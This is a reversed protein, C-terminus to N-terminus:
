EREPASALAEQHSGAERNKRQIILVAAGRAQYRNGARHGVDILACVGATRCSLPRGTRSRHSKTQELLSWAMAHGCLDRQGLRGSFSFAAATRAQEIAKMVACGPRVRGHDSLQWRDHITEHTNRRLRGPIGLSPPWRNRDFGAPSESSGPWTPHVALLVSFGDRAIAWQAHIRLDLVQYQEGLGASLLGRGDPHM